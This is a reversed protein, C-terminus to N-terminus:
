LRYGRRKAEAMLFYLAEVLMAADDLYSAELTLKLMRRFCFSITNRLHQENMTTPLWRRGERDRWTFPKAAHQERELEIFRTEWDEAAAVHEASKLNAADLEKQLREIERELLRVTGGGYMKFFEQGADPRKKSGKASRTSNTKKAM